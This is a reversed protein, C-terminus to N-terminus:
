FVINGSDRELLESELAEYCVVTCEDWIDTLFYFRYSRRM